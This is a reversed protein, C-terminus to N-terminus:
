QRKQNTSLIEDLFRATEWILQYIEYLIKWLL